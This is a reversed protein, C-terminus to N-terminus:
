SREEDDAENPRADSAKLENIHRTSGDTMVLWTEGDRAAAGATEVGLAAAALLDGAIRHVDRVVGINFLSRIETTVDGDGARLVVRLDERVALAAVTIAINEGDDSTIAALARARDLSLKALLTREAGTGLVVPIKYDRALEVSPASPDREVAVVGIGLSRLLLCLRLGVQGLGVVIVHDSRPIARRGIIGTLRRDLLRNIIGATLLAVFGLSALMLVAAFLKSGPGARDVAPNSAVTVLAKTADYFADVPQQHLAVGSVVADLALIGIFGSLGAVLFRASLDFPRLAGRIEHLARVLRGRRGVRLPVVEIGDAAETVGVLGDPLQALSELGDAICPGALTTAVADAMSTVQCRPVTRRLQGAVTRNFVTVILRGGPRAHEVVLAIRLVEIDDRSVVMTVDFEDTLVSAIERDNPRRMWRVSAGARTLALEVSRPFAGDGILLVSRASETPEIPLNLAEVKAGAEPTRNTKM